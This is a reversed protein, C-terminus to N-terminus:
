KGLALIAGSASKGNVKYSELANFYDNCMFGSNCREKKVVFDSVTYVQGNGPLEVKYDFDTTLKENLVVIEFNTTKSFNVTITTSSSIMTAFGTNKAFKKVVVTDLNEIMNNYFYVQDMDDAGLCYKKTCICSSFALLSVVLLMLSVLESSGKIKLDAM